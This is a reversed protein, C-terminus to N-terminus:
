SGSLREVVPAAREMDRDSVVYYSLGYCDRRAQM